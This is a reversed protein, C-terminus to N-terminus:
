LNDGIEEINEDTWKSPIDAFICCPMDTLDNFPCGNCVDGKNSCIEKIEKLAKVIDM